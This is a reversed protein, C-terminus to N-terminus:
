ALQATGDVNVTRFETMPDAAHDDMIHVRAALHIITDVGTLAHTWPTNRGLPEVTVPEVKDALCSPSESELLTGRVNWSESILRMCLFRGVFGSAGTVLVTGKM